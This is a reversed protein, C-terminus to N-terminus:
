KSRADKVGSLDIDPVDLHFAELGRDTLLELQLRKVPPWGLVRRDLRLDISTTLGGDPIPALVWPDGISYCDYCPEVSVPIAHDDDTFATMTGALSARNESQSCIVIDRGSPPRPITFTLRAVPQKRLVNETETRKWTVNTLRLTEANDQPKAIQLKTSAAQEPVSVSFWSEKEPFREEGRFPRGVVRFEHEGAAIPFRVVIPARQGAEIRLQGGEGFSGVAIILQHSTRHVAEIQTALQDKTYASFLVHPSDGDPLTQQSYVCFSLDKLSVDIPRDSRNTAFLTADIENRKSVSRLKTHLEFALPSQELVTNDRFVRIMADGPISRREWQEIQLRIRRDEFERLREHLEPAVLYGGFRGVGFRDRHYGGEVERPLLFQAALHQSGVFALLTVFIAANSVFRPM